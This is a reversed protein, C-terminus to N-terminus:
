QRPQGVALKVAHVSAHLEVIRNRQFKVTDKLKIMRTRALRLKSRAESLEKNRKDIKRQLDEVFRLLMERDNLILGINDNAV